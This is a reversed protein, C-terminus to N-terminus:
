ALSFRIPSQKRRVLVAACGDKGGAWGPGNCRDGLRHSVTGSLLLHMRSFGSRIVRIALRCRAFVNAPNTTAPTRDPFARFRALAQAGLTVGAHTNEVRQVVQKRLDSNHVTM